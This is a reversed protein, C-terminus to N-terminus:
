NKRGLNKEKRLYFKKSNESIAKGIKEKINTLFLFGGILKIILPKEKFFARKM